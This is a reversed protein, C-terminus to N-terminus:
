NEEVVINGTSESYLKDCATNPQAGRRTGLDVMDYLPSTLKPEDRWRAEEKMTAENFYFLTRADASVGTPLLRAGEAGDLAASVRTPASWPETATRTSVVVTSGGSPAVSNLFLEQDDPSLAPSGYTNGSYISTQNITSFATQDIATSFAADRTARTLEGLLTQDTSVLVLRKGDASLAAGGAASWSDPIVVASGVTFTGTKDARHAVYLTGARLFALDLEDSTVSLLTEDTSTSLNM